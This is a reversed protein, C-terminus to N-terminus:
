HSVLEPNGLKIILFWLVFLYISFGWIRWHFFMFTTSKPPTAMLFQKTGWATCIGLLQIWPFPWPSEDDQGALDRCPVATTPPTQGSITGRIFRVLLCSWGFPSCSISHWSAWHAPSKWPQLSHFVLKHPFNPRSISDTSPCLQKPLGGPIWFIGLQRTVCPSWLIGTVSLHSLLASLELDSHTYRPCLKPSAVERKM